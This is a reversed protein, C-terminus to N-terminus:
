AYSLRNSKLYENYNIEARKEDHFCEIYEVDVYKSEKRAEVLTKFKKGNAWFVCRTM